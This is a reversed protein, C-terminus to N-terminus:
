AAGKTQRQEQELAKKALILAVNLGRRFSVTSSASGGASAVMDIVTTTSLMERELRLVLDALPSV